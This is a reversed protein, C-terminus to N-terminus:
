PLERDILSSQQPILPSWPSPAGNGNGGGHDRKVQEIKQKIGSLSRMIQDGLDEIEEQGEFPHLMFADEKVPNKADHRQSFNIVYATLRSIQVELWQKERVEAKRLAHFMRPVMALFETDSLRLSVRAMAWTEIWSATAHPHSHPSRPTQLDSKSRSRAQSDVGEPEPMSAAFAKQVAARAQAAVKPTLKRGVEPVTWTCGDRQLLCWLLARLGVANPALINRASGLMDVGTLCECELLVGYTILLNWSQGGLKFEVPRCLLDTIPRPTPM